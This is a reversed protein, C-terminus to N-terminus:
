RGPRHRHDLERHRGGGQPLRAARLRAPASRAQPAQRAAAGGGAHPGRQRRDLPLAPGDAHADHRLRRRVPGAEAQPHQRLPLALHGQAPRRPRHRLPVARHRHRHLRRRDRGHRVLQRDGREHAAHRARTRQRPDLSASSATRPPHRVLAPRELGAPGLQAPRRGPDGLEPRLHPRARAHRGQDSRRLDSPRDLRRRPGQQRRLLLRRRTVPAPERRAPHHAAAAHPQGGHQPRPDMLRLEVTTASICTTILRGRKDFAITIGCSGLGGLGDISQSFVRLDDGLPGSNRYTDSQYADNHVANRGNAAM